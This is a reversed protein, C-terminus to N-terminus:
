FECIYIVFSEGLAFKSERRGGYLRISIFVFNCSKSKVYKIFKM